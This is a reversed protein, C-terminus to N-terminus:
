NNEPYIELLGMSFLAKKQALFYDYIANVRNIQATVYQTNAQIYDTITAAGVHLREKASNFNQRASKLATESIRARKEAAELNLYATQIGTRIQQELRRNAIEEQTLQLQATEIQYNTRFQNFIPISLNLGIYSRGLESFQDLETNSWGWGGNASIQPFYAAQASSIGSEAAEIRSQQAAYDQRNDFANNMAARINGIRQRFSDMEAGNVNTPLSNELFEAEIDPSLGMTSLLNAKAINLNNEAQVLDLESNGLETEQAYVSGIPLQGAEYQAQIRELENNNLTLNERRIKVIMSNKVVTIYQEYIRSVVEQRTHKETLHSANLTEEANNYSAERAFGDFLTYSAMANMNYNNAPTGPNEFIIGGVSVKQPGEPNLNRRYGVNFNLSPLYSGFAQTLRASASRTSAETLKIDYNNRVAINICEALSFINDGGTSKQAAVPVYVSIFILIIILKKM